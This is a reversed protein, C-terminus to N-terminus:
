EPDEASPLQEYEHTTRRRVTTTWVLYGITVGIVLSTAIDEEHHAHGVIRAGASFLGWAVPVLKMIMASMAKKPWLEHLMLATFVGVAMMEATGGSPHARYQNRLAHPELFSACAEHSSEGGCLVYTDPRPRSIFLKMLDIVLACLIQSMYYSSVVNFVDIRKNKSLRSASILLIPLIAFFYFMAFQRKVVKFRKPWTLALDPDPHFRAKYPFKKVCIVAIELLLVVFFDALPLTVGRVELMESQPSVSRYMFHFQKCSWNHDSHLSMINTLHFITLEQEILKM